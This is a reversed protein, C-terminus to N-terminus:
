ACYLNTNNLTKTIDDHFFYQKSSSVGASEFNAFDAFGGGDGGGFPDAGSSTSPAPSPASKPPPPRAPANKPPQPRPPPPKKPPLNPAPAASNHFPESGFPDKDFGGPSKAGSPFPDPHPKGVPWSPATEPRLAAFPDDQIVFM